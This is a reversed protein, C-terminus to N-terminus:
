PWPWVHRLMLYHGCWGFAWFLGITGFVMVTYAAADKFDDAGFIAGIVMLLVFGGGCITIAWFLLSAILLM